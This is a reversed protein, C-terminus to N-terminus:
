EASGPANDDPRNALDPVIEIGTIKHLEQPDLVLKSSRNGGGLIIREREMVARDVWLPLQTPLGLATVGGIEMGTLTTTTEGPAFSAKKTGLRRRVVSNVALRTSGLVVCAAHVPETAKGVVLITNASDDLEYGYRACFEITDAAAPDCPVVHTAVGWRRIAGAVLPHLLSFDTGPTTV